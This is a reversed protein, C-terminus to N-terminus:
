RSSNSTSLSPKHQKSLAVLAEAWQPVGLAHLHTYAALANKYIIGDMTGEIGKGRLLRYTFKLEGSGILASNHFEHGWFRMGTPFFPNSGSVEVSVYGHGQPKPRIEVEAPIIGVMESRQNRWKIGQCLYMLGACEAYVPLYDEIAQRIQTRLRHNAELERLFMEPFGGGIYLGDIDPLATDHISDIFVLEAGAQALAELNEPYYFTFVKDLMVGIKVEIAKKKPPQTDIINPTKARHAVELIRDLDLRGELRHYIQDIVTSEGSERYPVLGLHRETIFFSDEKPVSGLVSIGCHREIATKLKHEHRSGSVNNLIVGAITVDPRFNQYGSLMAAVSQTMRATNIVMIIPCNLSKAVQANSGQEGSDFGDFLGMAGEIVALDAGQSARKFSSLLTEQSM